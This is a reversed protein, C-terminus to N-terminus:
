LPPSRTALSLRSLILSIAARHRGDGKAEQVVIQKGFFTITEHKPETGVPTLYGSLAIRQAGCEGVANFTSSSKVPILAMRKPLGAGSSAKARSVPHEM